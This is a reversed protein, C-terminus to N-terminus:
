RVLSFRRVESGAGVKLQAFYVGSPVEAGADDRGNWYVEVHGSARPLNRIERVLTGTVDYIRLQGPGPLEM